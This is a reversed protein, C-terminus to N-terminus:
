SLFNDDFSELFRKSQKHKATNSKWCIDPYNFDGVLVLVQSQSAAELQRYFAEDVEEQEPLRYCVGVVTNGKSTQWKIRVWLSEVWENDVGLCLETCELHQRVYLAVGGGCRGSRDRRFLTYGKMVVNWDRAIGGCRQIRLSILARHSYM